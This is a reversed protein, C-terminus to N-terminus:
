SEEIIKLFNESVINWDFQQIDQIAQERKEKVIKQNKIMYM